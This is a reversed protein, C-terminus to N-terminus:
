LTTQALTLYKSCSFPTWFPLPEFVFFSFFGHFRLVLFDPSCLSFKLHLLSAGKEALANQMPCARPPSSVFMYFSFALLSQAREKPTQGGEHKLRTSDKIQWIFSQATVLSYCQDVMEFMLHPLVSSRFNCVGKVSSVM